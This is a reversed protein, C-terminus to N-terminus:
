KTLKLIGFVEPHHPNWVGTPRWALFDRDDQPGQLRYINVRFENGEVPERKDIAKLPIRLEAYWMKNATDVRAKVKFGSDWYREDNHGARPIKSDINLDLFEGQPSVEFEQYLNIQEFDSGIYLEFDDWEWLKYTENITDPDPKLVQNEYPGSFLFYINSKTWRSRAESALEPEPAGLISRDVIVPRTVSWFQSARDASLDNETDSYSSLFIDNFKIDSPPDLAVLISENEKFTYLFESAGDALVRNELLNTVKLKGPLKVTRMGGSPSYICLATSNAYVVDDSNSYIHVGADRMINRLLAAPIVPASSYLSTWGAKMKKVALGPKQVSILNGLVAVEPDDAYFQPSISFGPLDRVLSPDRPDKLYIQHDYYRIIGAVDVDTGYRYGLSLGKTYPHDFDSIEVTLEGATDDEKLNIGTLDSMMKLSLEDEQIYGPAYVWIAVAGNKALKKHIAKKQEPTVRFTNLFLYVKFDKMDRNDIDTLLYPEWPAGIFGLHWQKQATLLANFLPEGDGFYKFTEEDLIVAVEANSRKDANLYNEDIARLRGLLDIIQEDQFNGGHLDTWWLGFGKTMSYGYDRILLGKTEDWNKPNNLCDGWRWQRQFLHTETDVENLYLKGHMLANEPLTQSNNPGGIQKNDYTYPSAIFDIDDSDFVRQLGLHGTHNVSLNPFNCWLYGYFVGVIKKDGTLEKVWKCNELLVDATIDNFFSFYDPVRMGEAPDFFIGHTSTYREVEGPPTATEFTVEPDNWAKRLEGVRGYKNRLWEKFAERAVPSYDEVGFKEPAPRGPRAEWFSNFMLWEGGFGNGPQYGLINNGYKGEVHKLFAVMAKYSLERYKESALSPHCPSGFMGAPTGDDRMTIDDPYMECWWPGPTLLIRPLFLADPSIALYSDLKQDIKTFDYEEPGTWDFRLYIDYLNIGAKLFDRFYSEDPRYPAALTQSSLEGNIYLAPVGNLIRVESTLESMEPIMTSTIESPSKLAEGCHSLTFIILLGLLYVPAKM